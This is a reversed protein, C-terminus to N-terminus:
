IGGWFVSLEAGSTYSFVSNFVIAASILQPTQTQNRSIEGIEDLVNKLHVVEQAAAAAAVLETETTSTAVLAHLTKRFLSAIGQRAADHTLTELGIPTLLDM